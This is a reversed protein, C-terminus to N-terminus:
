GLRGGVVDALTARIRELEDGLADYVRDLVRGFGGAYEGPEVGFRALREPLEQLVNDIGHSGVIRIDYLAFLHELPREPETGGAMLEDRVAEAQSPIRYGTTLAVQALRVILDLLKLGRFGELEKAPMSLTTLLARLIQQGLQEALLSNLAVCRRLFDDRDISLPVHHTVPEVREVAWWGHHVLDAESFGVFAEPSTGPLSLAEALDHLRAGIAAFPQVIERARVAINREGRAEPRLLAPTPAIAHRNWHRIAAAPAGEYLKKLELRIANRGIRECFGVGWQTGFGISGTEPSVEFGPKGEYSGLVTDDVYAYDTVGLGAAVASTVPNAFGPWTLGVREIPDETIPLDAPTALLRAGWVQAAIRARGNEVTRNLQFVRDSFRHEAVKEGNLAQITDEDEEGWSIAYFVEFLAMGRLTLYDQIYDRVVRVEATTRVPMSWVSPPDVEVVDFSPGAPDDYVTRGGSIARPILGYTMLFRPDPVLATRDHSTWSLILPEYRDSPLGVASVWFAPNYDPAASALPHPGSARVEHALGALNASVAAFDAVSILVTYSRREGPRHPENEITRLSAVAVSAEEWPQEHIIHHLLRPWWNAEM